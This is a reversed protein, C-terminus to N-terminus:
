TSCLLQHRDDLPASLTSSWQQQLSTCFRDPLRPVSTHPNHVDGTGAQVQNPLSNREIYWPQWTSVKANAPSEQKFRALVPKGTNHQLATSDFLSFLRGSSVAIFNISFGIVQANGVSRLIGAVVMACAISFLVTVGAVLLNSIRSFLSM